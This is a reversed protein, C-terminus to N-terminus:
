VELARGTLYEHLKQVKNVGPDEIKGQALMSLWNPTLGTDRYIQLYSKDSCILRNRTKTLLSCESVEAM